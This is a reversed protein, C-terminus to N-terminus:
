KCGKKRSIDRKRQRDKGTKNRSPNVFNSSM